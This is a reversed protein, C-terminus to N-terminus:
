TEFENRVKNLEVELEEIKNAQSRVENKLQANLLQNEKLKAEKDNTSNM